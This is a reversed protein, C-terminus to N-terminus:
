ITAIGSYKTGSDDYQYIRVGIINTSDAIEIDSSGDWSLLSDSIEIPTNLFPQENEIKLIMVAYSFDNDKTIGSISIKMKDSSLAATFSLEEAYAYVENFVNFRRVTNDNDYVEAIAFKEGGINIKISSWNEIKTYDSPIETDLNLYPIEEGLEYVKMYLSTGPVTTNYSSIINKMYSSSDYALVLSKLTNNYIAKTCGAKKVRDNNDCEAIIVYEEFKETYITEGENWLHWDEKNDALYTNVVPLVNSESLKYYYRNGSIKDPTVSVNTYFCDAGKESVINLMKLVEDLLNLRIIGVRQAKHFRETCEVLCIMEGDHVAKNIESIGDWETYDNSITSGYEPITSAKKYMYINGSNKSPSVSLKTYGEKSGEVSAIDLIELEKAVQLRSNVTVRGFRLAHMTDDTELIIINSKDPIAIDSIGDWLTYNDNMIIQNYKPINDTIKWYYRNESSIKETSLILRTYGVEGAQESEIEIQNPLTVIDSLNDLGNNNTIIFYNISSVQGGNIERLTIFRERLTELVDSQISAENESMIATPSMANSGNAEFNEWANVINTIYNIIENKAKEFSTDTYDILSERIYGLQDYIFQYNAMMDDITPEYDRMEELIKEAITDNSISFDSKEIEDELEKIYGNISDKYANYAITLNDFDNSKVVDNLNAYLGNALIKILNNENPSVIINAQIQNNAVITEVTSTTSGRYQSLVEDPTDAAIESYIEFCKTAPNYKITTNEDIVTDKSMSITLQYTGNQYPLQLTRTQLDLYRYEAKMFYVTGAKKLNDIQDESEIDAIDIIQLNIYSKVKGDMTIYLMGEIPEDPLKEVVCFPDSYFNKGLYIAMKDYVFYIVNPDRDISIPLHKSDIVKLVKSM